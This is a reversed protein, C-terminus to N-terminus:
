VSKKKKYVAELGFISLFWLFVMTKELDHCVVHSILREKPNGRKSAHMHKYALTANHPLVLIRM